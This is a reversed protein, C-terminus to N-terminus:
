NVEKGEEALEELEEMEQKNKDDETGETEARDEGERKDEEIESLDADSLRDFEVHVISQSHIYVNGTWSRRSEISGDEAFRLRLPEELVMDKNLAAEGEDEVKGRLEEDATTQVRVAYPDDHGNQEAFEHFRAWPLTPEFFDSGFDVSGLFAGGVLAFMVLSIYVRILTPLDSILNNVGSFSLLYLSGTAVSMYVSLILYIVLMGALSLAFSLSITELRSLWDGRGAIQLALKIGALGPLLFLIISLLSFNTGVAISM